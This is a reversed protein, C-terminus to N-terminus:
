SVSKTEYHPAYHEIPIFVGDGLYAFIVDNEQISLTNVTLWIGNKLLVGISKNMHLSLVCLAAAEPLEKGSTLKKYNVIMTKMVDVSIVSHMHQM